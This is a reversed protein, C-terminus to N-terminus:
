WHKRTKRIRQRYSKSHSLHPLLQHKELISNYNPLSPKHVWWSQRRDISLNLFQDGKIEQQYYVPIINSPIFTDKRSLYHTNTVQKNRTYYTPRWTCQIPKADQRQRTTTIATLTSTQQKANSTINSKHNSNNNHTNHVLNNNQQCTNQNTPYSLTDSTTRM